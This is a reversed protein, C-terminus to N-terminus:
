TLRDLRERGVSGPFVKAEKAEKAKKAEEAEVSIPLDPICPLSYSEIPKILTKYDM